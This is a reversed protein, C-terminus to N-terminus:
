GHKMSRNQKAITLLHEAVKLSLRYRRVLDEPTLADISRATSLARQAAARAQVSDIAPPKPAGWRHTM